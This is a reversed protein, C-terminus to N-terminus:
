PTRTAAWALEDINWLSDRSTVGPAFGRLGRRVAVLHNPSLLPVIPLHEAVLAQVRAYQAHRRARDVETAQQRMLRDIETEWPALPAAADLRFLHTPGDRQWVNQEANPDADGGGLAMIAADFKRTKTVREVLARFELAAVQVDIGIAALDSQLMTAIRQRQANSTSALVTFAVRAGQADRLRGADDWRYGAARLGVRAADTSVAPAPLGAHWLANGPSVHTGLPTARGDYVLRAMAARDAAHSVAQRFAADHFWRARATESPQRSGADDLNLLLFTYELSPGLDRLDLTAAQPARALVGHSRTDIASLLDLDGALLRAAQADPDAIVEATVGALRPLAAGAADRKWYRPNPVLRIRQGPEYAQLRFPGLGVIAEPADTLTWVSALRQERYATELRHRPLMPVGALLRAPEPHPAGFQLRVRLDDLATAVMPQGGVRLAQVQSSGVKPDQFVALSFVVDDPGFPEGDPFTIGQHLTITFQGSADPGDLREALDPVAEQTRADIRFLEAHLLANLSTSVADLASVPNFTRPEARLAIRLDRQPPQSRSAPAGCAATCAMALAMAVGGRAARGSSSWPAAIRMMPGNYSIVLLVLVVVPAFRWPQTELVHLSRLEGILTGLSAVPEGMGLGLFSLTVEALVFHPFLTAAQSGVVPWAAPLVHRALTRPATAGAARAALVYEESTAQRVVARVLLAAAGWGTIGVLISVLLFAQGAPLALPLAARVALLLFIWPVAMSAEIVLTLLADLWAGAYGAIGGVGVAIILTIATALAAAALSLRAGHLVRALVDRGLDDTGLPFSASPAKAAHDRYQRAPLGGSVWGAAVIPVHLLLLWVALHRSV